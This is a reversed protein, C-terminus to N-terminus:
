EYRETIYAYLAQIGQAEGGEPRGPRSDTWGAFDIHIWAGGNEITKPVFKKLFLAATIAGALPKSGTSSTDAVKSKLMPEYGKFLPLRWMPDGIEEGKKQLELALNDDNTFLGPLDWGLAVRHAGTLTAMDVMVEPIEEDGLSLADALILRGEADTNGVEVTIGSRSTLVDSPRFANDSISNEAIPLLVRLNINLNSCMLMHALGLISAAGGMDKKMPFMASAPKIDLGGTDFVVGKGVLTVKPANKDGWRIDVLRPSRNSARGVADIMPYDSVLESGSIVNIEAGHISAVNRAEQELEEPGMFNAPTNILDRALFMGEVIAKVKDRDAGEPWVLGAPSKEEKKEEVSKMRSFKYSGLGWAIAAETAQASTLKNKIVYATDEPLKSPASGMVMPDTEDGVGYLVSGLNGQTGPLTCVQGAEGSFKCTKAFELIPGAAAALAEEDGKPVLHLGVSSPTGECFIKDVDVDFQHSSSISARSVYSRIGYRLGSHNPRTSLRLWGRSSRATAMASAGRRSVFPASRLVRSTPRVYSLRAALAMTVIFACALGFAKGFEM